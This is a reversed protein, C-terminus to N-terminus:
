ALRWRIFPALLSAVSAPVRAASSDANADGRNEYWRAVLMRIAQRLPDPVSAPTAGYGLAVDVEIGAMARGPAPPNTAFMLRAAEPNADLTWLSAPLPQAIGTTDYIRIGTISQFPAAPIRLIFDQPWGDLVFRWTQSILRRRTLAEVLQRAAAILATIADDEASFDIRLWAKVEALLVPEGAPATLLFPPM